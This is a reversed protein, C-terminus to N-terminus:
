TLLASLYQAGDSIPAPALGACPLRRVPLTAGAHQTQASWEWLPPQSQM